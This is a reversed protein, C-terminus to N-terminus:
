PKFWGVGYLHGVISRNYLGALTLYDITKQSLELDILNNRHAIVGTTPDYGSDNAIDGNRLKYNTQNLLAKKYCEKQYDSLEKYLYDIRKFCKTELFLAVDDEVRSIFREAKGSPLDDNPLVINLDEGFYQKYEDATIYKTILM